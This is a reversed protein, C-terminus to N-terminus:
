IAVRDLQYWITYQQETEFLHLDSRDLPAFSRTSRYQPLFVENVWATGGMRGHVASNFTHLYQRVVNALNNAETRSSGYHFLDVVTAALGTDGVLQDIVEGADEEIVLYPTIRAQRGRNHFIRADAGIGVLATIQNVSGLYSKLADVIDM